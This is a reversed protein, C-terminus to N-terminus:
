ESASAILITKIPTARIKKSRVETITTKKPRLMERGKIPMAASIM